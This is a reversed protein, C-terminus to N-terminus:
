SSPTFQFPRKLDPLRELVIEREGQAVIFEVRASAPSPKAVLEVAWILSILQGSFSLPGEPLRFSFERADVKKPLDFRTFEVVDGDETGKGRTFWLLRVTAMQPMNDMQWRATGSLKAGPAFVKQDQALTLSLTDNM